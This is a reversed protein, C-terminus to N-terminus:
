IYIYIYIYIYVRLEDAEIYKVKISSITKLFITFIFNTERSIGKTMEAVIKKEKKRERERESIRTSVDCGVM